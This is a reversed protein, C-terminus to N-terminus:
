DYLRHGFYSRLALEDRTKFEKMKGSRWRRLTQTSIEFIEALIYNTTVQAEIDKNILNAVRKPDLVHRNPEDGNTMRWHIQEKRYRDTQTYAQDTKLRERHMLKQMAEFDPM